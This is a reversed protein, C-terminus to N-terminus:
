IGLLAPVGAVSDVLHFPIGRLADVHAPNFKGTRVLAPVLGAAAAGRIDNDVDDGVMLIHAAPVGLRAIANDFFLRSPKGCVVARVETAAELAAVFGGADLALGGDTQWTLGRHMAVLPAGSRVARFADNLRPYSFHQNASDEHPGGIVVVEAERWDTVLPIGDFDERLSDSALLLVRRGLHHRQLYAITAAPASLVAAPDVEVGLASLRALVASRPRTMNTLFALGLRAGQIRRLAAAAGPLAQGSITLVGDIDFLVADFRSAAPVPRREAAQDLLQTM